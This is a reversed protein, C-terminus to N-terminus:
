VRLQKLLTNNSLRVPFAPNLNPEGIQFDANYLNRVLVHYVIYMQSMM